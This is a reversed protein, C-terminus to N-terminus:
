FVRVIGRRGEASLAYEEHRVWASPWVGKGAKRNRLGIRHAQSRL